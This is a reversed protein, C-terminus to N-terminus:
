NHHSHGAWTDLATGTELFSKLSSLVRPWGIAIGREMDTRKVLGAHTVTLRVMDGVTEIDFIARSANAENGSKGNDPASWSVALRKPPDSELVKGHIVVKGDQTKHEWGSGIKWDSINGHGWYQRAFEPVTIADWVKKPTTKIYTVYVYDPAKESM